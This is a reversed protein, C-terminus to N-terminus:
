AVETEGEVTQSLGYALYGRVVDFIAKEDAKKINAPTPKKAPDKEQQHLLKVHPYKSKLFSLLYKAGGGSIFLQMSNPRWNNEIWTFVEKFTEPIFINSEELLDIKLAKGKTDRHNIFGARLHHLLESLDNPEYNFTKKLHPELTKALHYMGVSVSDSYHSSLKSFQVQCYGSTYTGFDIYGFIDSNFDNQSILGESLASLHLGLAQPVL